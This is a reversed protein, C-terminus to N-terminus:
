IHYALFGSDLSIGAHNGVYNESLSPLFSVLALISHEDHCM